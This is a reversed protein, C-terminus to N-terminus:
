WARMGAALMYLGLALVLLAVIRRFVADDIKALLGKGWLTGAVCGATALLIPGLLARLEAGQLWFYVPLRAADVLLAVATATAVFALPPLQFGLMAASRIGGQNGVMGGLLGSALGAAGQAGKGLRVKRALGSLEALGALVLASGFVLTLTPSSAWRHALAGLLGGLASFSGFSWLVTRDLHTRILWFRLATAVLHPIAVAAVAAKLPVQTALVPTLLSGIGFGTIAAISGAVLAALFVILEFM